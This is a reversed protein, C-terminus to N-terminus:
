ASNRERLAHAILRQGLEHIPLHNVAPSRPSYAAANSWFLYDTAGDPEGLAAYVDRMIPVHDGYVCLWQPTQKNRLAQALHGLAIDANALHRAYAALDACGAPLPASLLKPIEDPEVREMHLPGHNEMTIAFVFVAEDQTHLRSEIKKMVEMDAVYAGALSADQFQEIDIFEDFGLLPFVDNRAYFSAPYPHICVTRYGRAKLASALTAIGTRALRRYPNFRHIGMADDSLGSLFSYETRVTNAGWASVALRGHSVSEACLGSWNEYIRPNLCDAWRRADFFSESQVVVINPRHFANDRTVRAHVHFPQPLTAADIPKREEHRYRWLAAILGFTRTDNEPQYSLVAVRQLRYLGIMVLAAGILLAILALLAVAGGGIVQTMPAEARLGIAVILVFAAAALLARWWGLFPLYLRPHRIADTFYEFDQYIFPERLSLFKANSVLTILLQWALVSAASFWPRRFVAFELAFILSYAGAHIMWASARRALRPKPLTFQDVVVSALLGAVFAFGWNLLAQSESVL